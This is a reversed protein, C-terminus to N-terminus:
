PGSSGCTDKWEDFGLSPGAGGGIGDPSFSAALVKDEHGALVAMQEGNGANWIRATSDHSASLVRKGDPSFDVAVVKDRHGRLVRQESGDAANWIRVTGDFSASALWRGDPSFAVSRVIGEHGKLKALLDGDRTRWLRVLRDSSATAIRLGDPSFVAKRVFGIHGPLVFREKRNFHAEYLIRYAAVLNEDDAVDSNRPLTELAILAGSVPDGADIQQQAEKLLARAREPALAASVEADPTKANKGAPIGTKASETEPSSKRSLPDWEPNLWSIL